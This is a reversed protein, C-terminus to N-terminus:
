KVTDLDIWQGNQNVEVKTVPHLEWITGRTKGVQDPHEPDLMIWGTVRVKAKQNALNQFNKLTWGPHKERQRPGVEIVVAKTRDDSANATIWEHFDIDTTSHCNPSEPGEPQVRIFYAEVTVGVGNHREVTARDAASWQAMHKKNVGDPWPLNLISTLPITAPAAVPDIRNKLTNLEPDTGDGGAPCGKFTEEQPTARPGTPIGNVAAQATAGSPATPITPFTKSEEPGESSKRLRPLVVVLGIILVVVVAIAIIAYGRQKSM